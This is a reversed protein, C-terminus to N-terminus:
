SKRIQLRAQVEYLQGSLKHIQTRFRMPINPISVQRVMQVNREVNNTYMRGILNRRKNTKTDLPEMYLDLIMSSFNDIHSTTTKASLTLQYMSNRIVKIGHIINKLSAIEVDAPGIPELVFPLLIGGATAKFFTRRSISKV